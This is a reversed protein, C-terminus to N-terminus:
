KLLILTVAQKARHKRQRLRDKNRKRELRCEECYYRPRGAHHFYRNVPKGCGLCGKLPIQRPNLPESQNSNVEPTMRLPQEDLVRGCRPCLWEVSEPIDASL